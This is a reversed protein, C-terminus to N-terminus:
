GGMMKKRNLTKDTRQQNNMKGMLEAGSMIKPKKPNAKEYDTLPRTIGEPANKKIKSPSIKKAALLWQNQYRIDILLDVIDALLHEEQNFGGDTM